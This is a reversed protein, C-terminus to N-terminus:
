NIKHQNPLDRQRLVEFLLIAAAAAANLSETKGPMNIYIRQTAIERAQLSAGSAEGGIIMALPSRFDSGQYPQGGTSDALYLTLKSATTLHRIQDWDMPYIPLKFHAGMAARVVKPAIPDATGPSLLVAEVGAAQATRLITGLNGPDRIGDLIVVFSLKKPIPLKLVPMLALIGQPSKTDSAAQMVHSAVPTVPVGKSQFAKIINRGRENIDETFLVYEPKWDSATIEEVLRVGEVIFLQDKRRTQASKQLKRIHQIRPNKISTLM